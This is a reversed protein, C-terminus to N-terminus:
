RWGRHFAFLSWPSERDDEIRAMAAAVMAILGGFLLSLGAWLSAYSAIRRTTDMLRQAKERYQSDAADVRLSAEQRSVGAGQSILSALRDRDDPLLGRGQQFGAELIRAAETRAGRVLNYDSQPVAQGFGSQGPLSGNPLQAGIAPPPIAAPTASYPTPAGGPETTPPRFLRDVEYATASPAPTETRASAVGYLVSVTAGAIAVLVLTGIVAVAWSVLGHLAARIEEQLTTEVMPGLLRGAVHGGAAFGFAEAVFFYIAGGNLFRPVPASAAPHVLLLGVGSGLLLLFFTVAVAIVGGALALGWSFRYGTGAEEIVTTDSM